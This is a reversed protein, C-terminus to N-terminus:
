GKGGKREAIRRELDAVRRELNSLPRDQVGTAGALRALECVDELIAQLRVPDTELRNADRWFSARREPEVRLTLGEEDVIIDRATAELRRTLGSPLGDALARGGTGRWYAVAAGLLVATVLGGAVCKGLLTM